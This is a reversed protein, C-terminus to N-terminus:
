GRYQAGIKAGAAGGVAAPNGKLKGDRALQTAADTVNKRINDAGTKCFAPFDANKAKVAAVVADTDADAADAAYACVPLLLAAASVALAFRNM